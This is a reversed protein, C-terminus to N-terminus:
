KALHQAPHLVTAASCMCPTLEGGCSCDQARETECSIHGPVQEHAANSTHLDASSSSCLQEPCAAGHQSALLLCAAPLKCAPLYHPCSAILLRHVPHVQPEEGANGKIDQQHAWEGQDKRACCYAQRCISAARPVAQAQAAKAAAQVCGTQCGRIRHGTSCAPEAMRVLMCACSPCVALIVQDAPDWSSSSANSGSEGQESSHPRQQQRADQVEDAETAQQVPPTLWIRLCALDLMFACCHQHGAHGAPQDCHLHLRAHCHAQMSSQLRLARLFSREHTGAKLAGATPEEAHLPGKCAADACPSAPPSSLLM